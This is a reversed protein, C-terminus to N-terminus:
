TDSHALVLPTADYFETFRKVDARASIQGITSSTSLSKFEVFMAPM